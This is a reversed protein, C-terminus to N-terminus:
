RVLSLCLPARVMVSDIPVSSLTGDLTAYTGQFFLLPAGEHIALHEVEGIIIYHDGGDHVAQRKCDLHGLCGELLPSGGRGAFWDVTEFKDARSSGFRRAIEIQGASLINVAFRATATFFEASASSKRISWLILAPSLSVAAFSNVAMGYLSDGRLGTM